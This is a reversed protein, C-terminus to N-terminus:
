SWVRILSQEYDGLEVLELEFTKEVFLFEQSRLVVAWSLRRFRPPPFRGANM